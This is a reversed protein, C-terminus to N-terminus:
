GSAAVWDAVAASTEADYRGDVSGPAFGLRALAEELQRVDEGEAGPTLDRYVPIAGQLVFVPRSSASLLLDGEDLQDGPQPITTVVGVEHKLASVALSVAQPLGYRATGRAVIDATLVREELPALIPSPTPPATRAAAEAPSQILGGALWGSVAALIVLALMVLLTRTKKPRM